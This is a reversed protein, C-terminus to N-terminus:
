VRNHDKNTLGEILRDLFASCRNLESLEIFEDPQHAQDISGPGCVVTSVGHDQFIGGETAYVVLNRANDGTLRRAVLEARGDEEAQLGPVNALEEIEIRCDPSIAQMDPLVEAQAFQRYAAIWDVANEEPLLRIDTVFECDEATINHAQGGSITGCHLTTYPPEYGCDPDSKAKNDATKGDLWSILKAAASIASVGRHLQSSHVPHGKIRTRLVAIGKHGTVVKMNTPEGVIAFDPRAGTALIDQVLPAAGFCGVEEDYSLAIYIPTKLDAKVFDPAKALVTAAFGKMDAAGRGYLRDNEVWASFPDKSWNQGEVPVVDTHASLIVGGDAAPGIRAHLSAKDGTENPVRLSQIGLDTLYDEVFAILDLNSRDSVTNFSILKTLMEQPSLRSSM